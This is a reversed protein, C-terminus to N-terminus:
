LVRIFRLLARGGNKNKKNIAHKVSYGKVKSALAKGARLGYFGRSSLKSAERTEAPLNVFTSRQSGRPDVGSM